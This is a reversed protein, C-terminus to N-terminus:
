KMLIMKKTQEFDSTSIRYFYIGSGVANGSEDTGDWVAEHTGAELQGDVITAVKQGLVNYISLEVQGANPLNFAITTAPNFPNPYNQALSYQDPLVTGASLSSLSVRTGAGSYTLDAAVREGDIRVVLQEGNKPYATNEADYGYIPTFKLIGDNYLGFGCLVGNTTYIEVSAGSRVPVGDIDLNAGYVSMWDRSPKVGASAALSGQARTQPAAITGGSFGPYVLLDDSTVKTWYGFGPMMETLSQHLPDGPIYDMAAGDFGYAVLLNDATLLSTLADEVPLIDQPWYSVLNWGSYVQIADNPSIIGGCIDFSVPCSLRLWYGHYYDVDNLTSFEPLLPDYTLGGLDFGLVVDVCGAYDAIMEAIAASYAVNWSILHWGADLDFTMCQEATFGCVEFVDGNETWILPPDTAVSVGNIKLTILDGPDAGEDIDPTYIDDAYIPIMGFSGDAEVQGMGCLVGDPDYATIYDGPELPVGELMPAACYINIWRDTPTVVQDDLVCITETATAVRNCGDTVTLTVDFCGISEYIHQPNTGYSTAGDGFDWFYIPDDPTSIISNNQFQVTLPVTGETPDATFAAIPAPISDIVYDIVCTVEGCANLATVTFSYNMGLEATFCLQGNSWTAGGTVTVEDANAIPLNTCIEQPECLEYLFPDPPCEITVAPTQEVVIVFGCDTTGCANTASLNVDTVGFTDPTFTLTDNAWAGATVNVTEYNTVAIPVMVSGGLQCMEFRVTDTPCSVVPLPCDEVIVTVDCTDAGCQNTAIITAYYTGVTSADFCFDGNTYVANWNGSAVVVTDANTIGIAQCVETDTRTVHITDQPCAIVPPENVTVNIAVNCTDAGCGNVATVRFEYLGTASADFCLMGEAWFAGNINVVGVSDAGTIPLPVCVQGAGCIEATLAATPCEIVPPSGIGVNVEVVCVNEGCNNSATVNFTYLGPEVATFCLKGNAWTAGGDSVVNDANAVPLDICIEGQDCIFADVPLEPCTITPATGGGGACVRIIFNRTFTNHVYAYVGSEFNDILVNGSEDLLSIKYCGPNVIDQLILYMSDLLMNSEVTLGFEKCLTSFPSRIDSNFDNQLENWEPHSFYTRVYDGPPAPPEFEDVGADYCDTAADSLGFRTSGDNIGGRGETLLTASLELGGPAPVDPVVLTVNITQPSNLAGAATVTITANYTGPGPMSGNVSTQVVAPTTGTLATLDLWPVDASLEFDYECGESSINIDKPGLDPACEDASFDLVLPNVVINSAAAANVTFGDILVDAPTAAGDVTVDYTGTAANYPISFTAQVETDSVVTVTDAIITPSGSNHTLFVAPNVVDTGQVVHWDTNAGIITVVLGEDCQTATNPTVSVIEPVPASEITFPNSVACDGSVTCCVKILVNASPTDPVTWSFTGTNSAGTSIVTWTTGGDISYSIDVTTCEPCDTTTYTINQMTGATWTEGGVPSTVTVACVAPPGITFCHPGDWAPFADPGAWKWVGSPPYFSSDLCIQKGNDAASLPGIDITYAVDDYNAPLGSGFFVFGGFGITDAGSGDISFTNIFFGGDFQARGLGVTDGITSGWTAGDNSYVRFGNTIGKHNTADGTVRLYFTVPVGTDLHTADILGDTHDLSISQAGALGYCGLVMMSLLVFFRLKMRLVEM